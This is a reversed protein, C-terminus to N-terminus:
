RGIEQSTMRASTANRMTGLLVAALMILSAVMLGGGLTKMVDSGGALVVGFFMLAFQIQALRAPYRGETWADIWGYLAGFLVFAAGNLVAMHVGQGAWGAALLVFFGSAWLVPVGPQAGLAVKRRWLASVWIFTFVISAMAALVNSETVTVAQSVHALNAQAWLVPGGVAAIASVAVALHRARDTTPALAEFLRAAMGFAAVLVILTLPPAFSIITQGGNILAHTASAALVPAVFLLGCAALLQTWVFISFPALMVPHDDGRPAVVGPGAHSDLVVGLTTTGLLAAGACWVLVGFPAVTGSAALFIPLSLAILGLAVVDFPKVLRNASSSAGILDQTLFLRGFGGLFAPVGVLLLMATPHFRAIAQALDDPLLGIQQLLMSLGALGSVGAALLLYGAVVPSPVGGNRSFTREASSTSVAMTVRM